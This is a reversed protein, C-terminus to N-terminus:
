ITAKTREIYNSLDYRIPMAPYTFINNRQKQIYMEQINEDDLLSIKHRLDALEEKIDDNLGYPDAYDISAIVNDFLCYLDDKRDSCFLENVFATEDFNLTPVEQLKNIVKWSFYQLERCFTILEEDTRKRLLGFLKPNINSIDYGFYKLVVYKIALKLQKDDNKNDHMLYDIFISVLVENKKEDPCKKSIYFIDTETDYEGMQGLLFNKDVLETTSQTIVAIRDMFNISHAANEIEKGETDSYAYAGMVLYSIDFQTQKIMFQIGTEIDIVDKDLEKYPVGEETIVIAPYIIHLMQANEKIKRGMAEWAGRGCVVEARKGQAFLLLHNLYSLLPNSSIVDLYTLINECDTITRINAKLEKIELMVEGTAEHKIESQFGSPFSAAKM